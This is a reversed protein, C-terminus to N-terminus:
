IYYGDFIISNLTYNSMGNHCPPRCGRLKRRHFTGYLKIPHIPDGRVPREDGIGALLHIFVARNDGNNQSLPAKCSEPYAEFHFLHSIFHSRNDM